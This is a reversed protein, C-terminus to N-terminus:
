REARSVAGAPQETVLLLRDGVTLLGDLADGGTDPPIQQAYTQRFGGGAAAAEDLYLFRGTGPPAESSSQHLLSAVVIRGGREALRGRNVDARRVLRAAPSFHLNGDDRLLLLAGPPLPGRPYADPDASSAVLLDTGGDASLVDLLRVPGPRTPVPEPRLTFRGASGADAVRVNADRQFVVSAGDPRILLHPAGDVGNDPVM